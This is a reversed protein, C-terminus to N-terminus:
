DTYTKFVSFVKEWDTMQRQVLDMPGRTPWFDKVRLTKWNKHPREGEWINSICEVVNESQISVDRGNCTTNSPAGTKNKEM